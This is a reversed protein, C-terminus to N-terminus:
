AYGKKTCWAKYEDVLERYRKGAESDWIAGQLVRADIFHVANHRSDEFRKDGLKEEAFAQFFPHDCLSRAEAREKASATPGIAAADQGAPAITQTPPKDARSAQELAASRAVAEPGPTPTWTTLIGIEAGPSPALAFFSARDEKRVVISVQLDGNDLEMAHLRKVIM